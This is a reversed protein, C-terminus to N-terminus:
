STTAKWPGKKGGGKWKTKTCFGWNWYFERKRALTWCLTSGGKKCNLGFDNKGKLFGEKSNCIDSISKEGGKQNGKGMEGVWGGGVTLNV